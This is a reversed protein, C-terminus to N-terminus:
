LLSSDNNFVLSRTSRRVPSSSPLCLFCCIRNLMCVSFDPGMYLGVHMHLLRSVVVIVDLVVVNRM